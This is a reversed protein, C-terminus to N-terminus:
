SHYETIRESKTREDRIYDVKHAKTFSTINTCDRCSIVLGEDECREREEHCDNLKQRQYKGWVIERHSEKKLKTSEKDKLIERNDFPKYFLDSFVPFTLVNETLM